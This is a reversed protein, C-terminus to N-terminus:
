ILLTELMRPTTIGRRYLTKIGRESYALAKEFSDIDKHSRSNNRFCNDVCSQGQLYLPMLLGVEPQRKNERALLMGNSDIGFIKAPKLKGRSTSKVKEEEAVLGWPSGQSM